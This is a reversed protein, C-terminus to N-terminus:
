IIASHGSHKPKMTVPKLIGNCRSCAWRCCGGPATAASKKMRSNRRIPPAAIGEPASTCLLLRFIGPKEPATATIRACVIRGKWLNTTVKHCGMHNPFNKRGCATVWPSPSTFSGTQQSWPCTSCPSVFCHRNLYNFVNHASHSFLKSPAQFKADYKEVMTDDIYLFIASDKLCPLVCGLALRATVAMWRLHDFAAYDLAPILM